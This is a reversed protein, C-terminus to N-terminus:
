SMIVVITSKDLPFNPHPTSNLRLSKHAEVNYWTQDPLHNTKLIARFVTMVFCKQDQVEMGDLLERMEGVSLKKKKAM